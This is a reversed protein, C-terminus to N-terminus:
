IIEKLNTVGNNVNDSGGLCIPYYLLRPEELERVRMPFDPDYFPRLYKEAFDDIYKGILQPNGEFLDYYSVQERDFMELYEGVALYFLM